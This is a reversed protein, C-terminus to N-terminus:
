ASAAQRVFGTAVLAILAAVWAGGVLALAPGTALAAAMVGIAVLVVHVVACVALCARVSLGRGLLQDYFHARDPGFLGTRGSVRRVLSLLLDLAFLGLCTGAGIALPLDRADRLVAVALAAGLLYAGSNGLFLRAPPFNHFLFGLAAGGVVLPFAANAGHRDAVIALGVASVLAGAGALGDMGDVMNVANVSAVVGIISVAWSLWSGDGLAARAGAAAILTGVGVQVAFRAPVPVGAADDLVGLVTILALAIPVAARFPWGEVASGAALAVAVALGGLYSVPRAHPKLTGSPHDLAGVREGMWRTGYGAALAVAVAVFAGIM